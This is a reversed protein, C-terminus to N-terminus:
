VKAFLLLKFRGDNMWEFSRPPYEEPSTMFTIVSVYFRGANCKYGGGRLGRHVTPPTARAASIGGVGRRAKSFLGM